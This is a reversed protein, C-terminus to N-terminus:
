GAQEYRRHNYILEPGPSWGVKVEPFVLSFYFYYIPKTSINEVEIKLNDIWDDADLDSILTVKVIELHNGVGQIRRKQESTEAQQVSSTQSSAQSLIVLLLSLTAMVEM